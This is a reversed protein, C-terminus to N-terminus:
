DSKLELWDVGARIMGFVDGRWGHGGKYDVLTTKVDANTLAEKAAAAMRYPCVRDEPSHLLYVHRGKANMADPYQDPKFVSMAIFAGSVSSEKQLLTAYAAPGGSSWAFLYIREPDLKTTNGVHEIVAAVLEETTFKAAETRSSATPWVVFQDDNWKKALPQAVAFDKPLCNEHIRKVFPHFDATGAGGPLVILLGNTTKSEEQPPVFLYEGIAEGVPIEIPKATSTEPEDPKKDIYVAKLDDFWVKGPGYIQLAISIQGTGEPIAVEGTYEKWDHTVAPDGAEKAGIYSVWEHSIGEGNQKLFQVDIIAKFAQEARVQGTVRLAPAKGAHPVVRVWQAIPFYRNASKQLSLSREGTKGRQKDYVYKVGPINAGQKWGDPASEGQEFSDNFLVNDEAAFVAQSFFGVLTLVFTISRSLTKM